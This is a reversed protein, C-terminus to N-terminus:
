CALRHFPLAALARSLVMQADGVEVLIEDHERLQADIGM